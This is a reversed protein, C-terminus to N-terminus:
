FYKYVKRNTYTTIILVKKKDISKKEYSENINNKHKNESDSM